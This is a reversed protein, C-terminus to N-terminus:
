NTENTTQPMWFIENFADFINNNWEKARREFTARSASVTAQTSDNLASVLIMHDIKKSFRLNSANTPLAGGIESRKTVFYIGYRVGNKVVVSGSLKTSLDSMQIAYTNNNCFYEALKEKSFTTYNLSVVTNGNVTLANWIGKFKRGGWFPTNTKMFTKARNYKDTDSLSAFALQHGFDLGGQGIYRSLLTVMESKTAPSSPKKDGNEKMQIATREAPNGTFVWAWIGPEASVPHNAITFGKTYVDSIAWERHCGFVVDFQGSSPSWEVCVPELQGDPNTILSDFIQSVASQQTGSARAPNHSFSQIDGLPIFYCMKNGAVPCDMKKSIYNQLNCNTNKKINIVKGNSM